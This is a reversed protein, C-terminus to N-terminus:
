KNFAATMVRELSCRGGHEAHYRCKLKPNEKAQPKLEQVSDFGMHLNQLAFQQNKELLVMQVQEPRVSGFRQQLFVIEVEDAHEKKLADLQESDVISFQNLMEGLRDRSTVRKQKHFGSQADDLYTEYTDASFLPINQERSELKLLETDNPVRKPRQCVFAHFVAAPRQDQVRVVAIENAYGDFHNVHM